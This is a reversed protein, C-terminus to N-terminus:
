GEGEGATGAGTAGSDAGVDADPGQGEVETRLADRIVRATQREAEARIEYGSRQPWDPGGWPQRRPVLKGALARAVSGAGFEAVPSVPADAEGDSDAGSM